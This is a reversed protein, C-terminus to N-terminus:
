LECVHKRYKLSTNQVPYNFITVTENIKNKISIFLFGIKFTQCRKDKKLKPIMKERIIDIEKCNELQRQMVKNELKHGEM